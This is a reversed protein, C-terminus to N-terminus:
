YIQRATELRNIYNTKKNTDSCGNRCRMFYGIHCGLIKLGPVLCGGGFSLHSWLDLLLTLVFRLLKQVM